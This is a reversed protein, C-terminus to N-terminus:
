LVVGTKRHYWAGHSVRVIPTLPPGKGALLPSQEQAFGFADDGLGRTAVVVRAPFIGSGVAAKFEVLLTEAVAEAFAARPARKGMWFHGNGTLALRDEQGTRTAFSLGAEVPVENAEVTLPRVVIFAEHKALLRWRREGVPLVGTGHGAEALGFVPGVVRHDNGDQSHRLRDRSVGDLDAGIAAILGDPIKKSLQVWLKKQAGKGVIFMFAPL